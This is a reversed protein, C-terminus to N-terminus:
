LISCAMACPECMPVPAADASPPTVATQADSVTLEAARVLGVSLLFSAVLGFLFRQIKKMAARPYPNRFCFGANVILRGLPSM